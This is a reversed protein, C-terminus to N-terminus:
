EWVTINTYITVPEDLHRLGREINLIDTIKLSFFVNEM